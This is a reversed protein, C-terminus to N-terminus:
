NLMHAFRRQLMRARKRLYVFFAVFGALVGGTIGLLSVIAMNMGNTVQSDPAGYCSPCALASQEAITLAVAIMVMRLVRVIQRM